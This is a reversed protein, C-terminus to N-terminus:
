FALQAPSRELVRLALGSETRLAVGRGLSGSTFPAKPAHVGLAQLMGLAPELADVSLVLREGRAGADVSATAGAHLVVPTRGAKALPLASPLFERTSAEFGFRAFDREVAAVDAGNAGFNYVGCAREPADGDVD